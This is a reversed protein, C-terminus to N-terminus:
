GIFVSGILYCSCEIAKLTNKYGPASQCSCLHKKAEPPDDGKGKECKTNLLAFFLREVHARARARLASCAIRILKAADPTFNTRKRRCTVVRERERQECKVNARMSSPKRRWITRRKRGRLAKSLPDDGVKEGHANHFYCKGWVYEKCLACM